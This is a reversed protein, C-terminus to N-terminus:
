VHKNIVLEDAPAPIHEVLDPREQGFLELYEVAGDLEFTLLAVHVWQAAQGNIDLFLLLARSM